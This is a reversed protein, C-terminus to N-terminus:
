RVVGSGPRGARKAANEAERQSQTIFTPCVGSRPDPTGVTLGNERASFTPQGEMGAKLLANFSALSEPTDCFVDRLGDIWGAVTPMQDRLHAM